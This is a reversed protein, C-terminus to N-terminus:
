DQGKLAAVFARTSAALEATAASGKEQIIRHHLSGVIVGDASDRVAAAQEPRSFGFGAFIPLGTLNRALHIQGKVAPPLEAREGTVGYSTVHYVFGHARGKLNRLRDEGTNPASMFIQCIDFQESVQAFMRAEPQDLPLDPIVIGAVGSDRCKRLFMELSELPNKSELAFGRFVPNMYSLFVLPISPHEKHIAAATEFIRDLSFDSQAMARVMAAQIVPGDATPDSFPIGLEILDAGAEIMAGAFVITDSFSPDGMTLYPM